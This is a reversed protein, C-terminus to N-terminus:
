SRSSIEVHESFQFIQNDTEIKFDTLVGKVIKVRKLNMVVNFMPRRKLLRQVFNQTRSLRFQLHVKEGIPFSLNQGTFDDNVQDDFTRIDILCGNKYIDFYDALIEGVVNKAKEDRFDFEVWKQIFNQNSLNKFDKRLKEVHITQLKIANKNPKGDVGPIKM